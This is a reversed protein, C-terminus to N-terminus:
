HNVESEIEPEGDGDADYELGTSDHYVDDAGLDPLSKTWKAGLDRRYVSASLKAAQEPAVVSHFGLPKLPHMELDLDEGVLLADVQELLGYSGTESAGAEGLRASSKGRYNPVAIFIHVEPECIYSRNTHWREEAGDIHVWIQPGDFGEEELLEALQGQYGEIAYCAGGNKKLLPDLAGLLAEEFEVLTPASM